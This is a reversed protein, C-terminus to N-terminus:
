AAQELLAHQELWEAELTEIERALYAQEIMLAKLRERHEDAYVDPAALTEDVVKKKAQAETLRTEVRQIRAEIPKRARALQGRAEASAKRQDRAPKAPVAEARLDTAAVAKAAPTRAATTRALSRDRYDDVDGDFDVCRGDDVVLLRDSTARLLSRDHSVLILTGEFQALAYTLAERTELDLHNTPEDLLLLSPRTWIILALALRAKEGGSFSAVLSKVMEAGFAFSGLYNRLEQERPAPGTRSAIRHLQELPSSAFDLMDIQHQAFYGIALGKGATITGGLPELTGAITKVVTSKGQGNAGLLGIREGPSIRLDLDRVVIRVGGAVPHGEDDLAQRYGCSVGELVLMPDPSSLPERFRFSFPSAQIVPELLTMREMAKVRSQAQRAKSAKAKFRDVFKQLHAIERQQRTFSTAALRLREARQLEFSSYNGTWRTLKKQELALTVGCIADLFERDHSIVVLCGPYRKLWQELWVIADLDLHNTPEDLLLLDSPAMLAQALQLRMRWGGSFSAFSRTTEAVKFGLGLLLAEARASATYGGADGHQMHLEALHEDGSAGEADRREIERAIERLGRDGDIVFEVASRTTAAAEQAVHAVRWGAPMSLDGTDAGLEGQLLAFLSSKGSGNAGVLGVKEGAHIVGSTDDLLLKTGRRISLHEWRIM